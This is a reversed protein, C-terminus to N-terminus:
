LPQPMQAKDEDETASPQMLSPQRPKGFLSYDLHLWVVATVITWFALVGTFIMSSFRFGLKQTTLGALPSTVVAGVVMFQYTASTVVGHTKESDPYGANEVAYRIAHMYPSVYTASLGVGIFVQSMYVFFLNPEIPIISIPGVMSYGVVSLLMSFFNMFPEMKFKAFVGSLLAGISYGVFQVTFVTGIETNSLKFQRLFPELTPENFGTM